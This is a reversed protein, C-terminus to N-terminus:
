TRTQNILLGEIGFFVFFGTIKVKNMQRLWLHHSQYLSMHCIIGRFRVILFM